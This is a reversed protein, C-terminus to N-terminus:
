AFACRITGSAKARDAKEQCALCFEAAPRALLRREAIPEECALCIGYQGNDLRTLAAEIRRREQHHHFLVRSAVERHEQNQAAEVTDSTSTIMLNERDLTTMELRTREALLLRTFHQLNLQPM